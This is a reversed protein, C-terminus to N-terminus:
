LSHQHSLAYALTLRVQHCDTRTGASRTHPLAFRNAGDMQVHLAHPLCQLATYCVTHNCSPTETLTTVLVVAVAHCRLLNLSDMKESADMLLMGQMAALGHLLVVTLRRAAAGSLLM